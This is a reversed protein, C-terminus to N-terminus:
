RALVVRDQNSLGSDALGGDRLSQCEAHDGAVDGRVQEAAEVSEVDSSEVGTGTVLALELLADLGDEVLALLRVAADDEEDVLDVGDHGTREGKLARRPEKISEIVECAVSARSDVGRVQELWCESAPLQAAEAGCGEGLVALM